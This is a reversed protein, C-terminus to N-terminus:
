VDKQGNQVNDNYYEFRGGHLAIQSIIKISIVPEETPLVYSSTSSQMKVSVRHSDFSLRPMGMEPTM